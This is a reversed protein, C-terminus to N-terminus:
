HFLRGQVCSEAKEITELLGARWWLAYKLCNACNKHGKCGPLPPKRRAAYSWAMSDASVLYSSVKRLGQSKFGFGHLKLGQSWLYRILDEAVITAQRRCISGVGVLPLKELDVGANWWQQLHREYDAISWGQLVPLWRIDPAKRTLELYNQITRRQHSALMGNQELPTLERADNVVESHLRGSPETKIVGEAVAVSKLIWPECMWDM